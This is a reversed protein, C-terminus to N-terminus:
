GRGKRQGSSAASNVARGVAAGTREPADELRREIQALRREAQRLLGKSERLEAVAERSAASQARIENDLTGGARGGAGQAASDRQAFLDALQSSAGANSGYFRAEDLSANRAIEAIVSDPLGQARLMGLSAALSNADRTQNQLQGARISAMAAGREGSSLSALYADLDGQDVTAQQQGSKSIAFQRAAEYLEGPVDRLIDANGSFPSDSFRGAVDAALAKREDKLFQLREKQADAEKTAAEVAKELLRTRVRMEARLGQESERVARAFRATESDAGAMSRYSSVLGGDAYGPLSSMGPLHGYRSSLHAKDRRVVEQPLVVEGRHVIGAPEYKGGRGTFGGSAFGDRPGFSSEGVRRTVFTHTTTRSTPIQLIARTVMEAASRVQAMGQETMKTNRKEPIELISDALRRAAARPVDMAVATEIFSRRAERFREGNNKVADSQNNWAAALSSLAQRNALAADSSGRIGAENREAQAQAAKLAQRYQTEADFASLTAERKARMAAASAEIADAEQQAAEAVDESAMAFLRSLDTGDGAAVGFTQMLGTTGELAAQLDRQREEQDATAGTLRQWQAQVTDIPNKIAELQGGLDFFGSSSAATLDAQRALDDNVVSLAARIDEPIMSELALSTAQASDSFSVSANSADMMLGVAAGVAAGWPGALTGMMALSATNAAAFGDAVGTTALALGGLATAGRLAAGRVEDTAKAQDRLSAARTQATAGFTGSLALNQRLAAGYGLQAATAQAASSTTIGGWAKTALSLASMATVAAMIPTGLNSDALAAVVDAISEVAQLVPGGLPAAAEGIQLLANAIAGFTEGVQPGTERVYTVFDAFGETAALGTAWDDFSDATRAVWDGFDRNLPAFAMWLESMGHAVDGVSAAMQELAPPAETEIFNLFDAWRESGLSAGADAAINGLAQGVSAAIREVGELAPELSELGDILGPFLNAAGADRIDRLAPAMSRLQGVLDQAAPSLQAMADRAARLNEETPELAATNVAELADGVGQFAAIAVGAGIAAVGFQNALGAVAAVGVTGIPALAPGLVAATRALLSLRGSFQDISASGERAKRSVVAVENGINRVTMETRRGGGAGNLADLERNLLAAATAAKAMGATFRDDLILQVTEKRTAV